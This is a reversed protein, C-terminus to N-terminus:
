KLVRNSSRAASDKFDRVPTAVRACSGEAALRAVFRCTRKQGARAPRRLSDSSMGGVSVLRSSELIWKALIRYHHRM